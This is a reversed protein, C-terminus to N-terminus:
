ITKYSKRLNKSSDKQEILVHTSEIIGDIFSTYDLMVKDEFKILKEPEEVGLVDRLLCGFHNAKEKKM